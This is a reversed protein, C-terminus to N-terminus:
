DGHNALCGAVCLVLMCALVVAGAEVLTLGGGEFLVSVIGVLGGALLSLALSPTELLDGFSSPGNRYIRHRLADVRERNERIEWEYGEPVYDDLLPEAAAPEPEPEEPHFAGDSYVLIV